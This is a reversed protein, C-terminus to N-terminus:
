PNPINVDSPAEDRLKQIQQELREVAQDNNIFTTFGVIVAASLLLAIVSLVIGSIAVGKGTIGIRKSMKVGVIGLIIGIISLVLALPAPVVVLVILLAILGCVLSFVAAASTKAPKVREEDIRQSPHRDAVGANRDDDTDVRRNVDDAGRDRDHDRRDPDQDMPHSGRNESM